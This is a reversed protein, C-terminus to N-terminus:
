AYAIESILYNLVVCAVAATVVARNTASGVGKPGPKSHYGNYCCILCIVAGFFLAKINGIRDRICM